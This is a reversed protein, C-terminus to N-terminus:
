LMELMKYNLKGGVVSAPTATLSPITAEDRAIITLTKKDLSMTEIAANTYNFRSDSLGYIDVWSGLWGDFPFDLTVTLRTTSQSISVINYEIPEVDRSVKDTVEMVTYDGYTRQSLSAEIEAYLPFRVPRKFEVTTQAESVSLPDISIEVFQQGNSSRSTNIFDGGDVSSTFNSDFKSAPANPVEQTVAGSTKVIEISDSSVSHAIEINGTLSKVWITGTLIDSTITEDFDLIFGGEEDEAVPTTEKAFVMLRSGPKGKNQIVYKKNGTSINMWESGVIIYNNTM